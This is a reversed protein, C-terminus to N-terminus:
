IVPMNYSIFILKKYQELIFAVSTGEKALIIKFVNFLLHPNM